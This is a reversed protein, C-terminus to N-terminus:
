DADSADGHGGDSGGELELGGDAGGDACPEVTIESSASGSGDAYAVHISAIGPAIGIAEPGALGDVVAVVSPDASQAVVAGGPDSWYKCFYSEVRLAAREGVCLKRPSTVHLGVTPADPGADCDPPM